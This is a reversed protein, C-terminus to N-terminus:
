LVVVYLLLPLVLSAAASRPFFLFSETIYDGRLGSTASIRKEREGGECVEKEDCM